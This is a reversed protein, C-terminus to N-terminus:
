YPYPVCPDEVFPIWEAVKNKTTNQNSFSEESNETSLRDYEEEEAFMEEEEDEEEVQEDEDDTLYQRIIAIIQREGDVDRRRDRELRDEIDDFKINFEQRELDQKSVLNHKKQVIEDNIKFMYEEREKSEMEQLEEKQKEAEQIKNRSLLLKIFARKNTISKSYIINALSYTIEQELQNQEEEFKKNLFYEEKERREALKAAQIDYFSNMDDLAKSHNLYQKRLESSPLKSFNNELNPAASHLESLKHLRNINYKLKTVTQTFNRTIADQLRANLVFDLKPIAAAVIHDIEAGRLLSDVVNNLTNWEQNTLSMNPIKPAKKEIPSLNEVKPSRNGKPTKIERSSM